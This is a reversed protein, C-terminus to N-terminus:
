EIRLTYVLFQVNLEPASLDDQLWAVLLLFHLYNKLLVLLLTTWILSIKTYSLIFIPKLSVLGQYQEVAVHIMSQRKDFLGPLHKSPQRLLIIHIQELLSHVSSNLLQFSIYIYIYFLAYIGFISAPIHLWHMFFTFLAFLM